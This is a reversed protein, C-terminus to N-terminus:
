PAVTASPPTVPEQMSQGNLSRRLAASSPYAARRANAISGLPRNETGTRWPSFALATGLAAQGAAGIDQQSFELRGIRLFPSDREEWRQTARDLPTVTDDLYPQAEFVYSIPGVRLRALLDEGLYNPSAGPAATSPTEPRLRYKAAGAGVAYPLCSSFTTTALSAEPKSMEQLIAASRRHTAVYGNFDQTIACLGGADDAFFIDSNQFLLDATTATPDNEALTRGTVGFLKLALGLTQNTRDDTNPPADSSFRAWLPYPGGAWLGAAKFEAPCTADLTLVGRAVGHQKRFVAREAPKEGSTQIRVLQFDDVFLWRTHEVPEIQCLAPLPQLAAARVTAITAEAPKARSKRLLDHPM